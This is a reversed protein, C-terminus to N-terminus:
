RLGRAVAQELKESYSLKRYTGTAMSAPNGTPNEAGTVVLAPSPKEPKATANRLTVLELAIAPKVGDKVHQRAEDQLKKPLEYLTPIQDFEWGEEYMERVADVNKAVNPHAKKFGEWQELAAQEHAKEIEALLTEHQAKLADLEAKAAEAAANREAVSASLQAIRPDESGDSLAKYLTEWERSSERVSELEGLQKELEGVRDLKPQYFRTFAEGAVRLDEPLAEIKGDWKSIDFTPTQSEEPDQSAPAAPAPTGTNAPTGSAVAPTEVAPSGSAAVAPTEDPM